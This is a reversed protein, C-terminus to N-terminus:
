LRQKHWLKRYEQIKEPNSKPLGTNEDIVDWGYVAGATHLANWSISKRVSKKMVYYTRAKGNRTYKNDTFKLWIGGKSMEENNKDNIAKAGEYQDIISQKISPKTGETIGLQSILNEYSILSNGEIEGKFCVGDYCNSSEGQALSNVRERERTM